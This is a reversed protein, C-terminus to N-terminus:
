FLLGLFMPQFIRLSIRHSGTHSERYFWIMLIEGEQPPHEPLQNYIDGPSVQSLVPYQEVQQMYNAIWDIMAYGHERFEGPTMHGAHNSM